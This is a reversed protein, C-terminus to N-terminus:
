VSEKKKVVVTPGRSILTILNRLIMPLSMKGTCLLYRPQWNPSYKEKYRRLGQFNYFRGGKLFLANGMKAWYGSLPHESLGSMPAMGLNFAAYGQAKGWLLLEVFLFDMIPGAGVEPLYRMLDISLSSRNDCSWLNAFGVVKDYSMVLALPGVKLYDEDFYGVSFGKERGQKHALWTDSIVKLEPFMNPEQAIDIVKFSLGERVGKSHSQRINRLKSSALNLNVLDVIAEEGLKFPILGLELYYPLYRASVQYFVPSADHEDCLERFQWLLEEICELQGIPDGMAIWSRGEIGYMLFANGSTHFLLSKDGLVALFGHTDGEKMVLEYAKAIEEETPPNGYSKAPSLLKLVGAAMLVAVGSGISRLGRSVAGEPSFDLWLAHDYEVHRYSFFLIWLAGLLVAGVSLLWSPTFPTHLLSGKRYFLARCPMIMIFFLALVIAPEWEGGKTLSAIVGIALLGQAVRFASDYRRYLSRALLILLVGCVGGFIHSIEILPLPLIELVNEVRVKMTPMVSSFLLLVGSSFAGFSILAPLSERMSLLIGYWRSWNEKNKILEQSSFLLLSIFFPLIYYICRYIILAALLQNTPVHGALLLTMCAEFVGIGGPVHAIVGLLSALVFVALLHSYDVSGTPLLAYLVAAAAMWDLLGLLLQVLRIPSSPLSLSHGRFSLSRYPILLYAIVASLSLYGIPILIYSFWIPTEALLVASQGLLISTGSLTLLGLFFTVSCFIIIRAIAGTSLGLASYFRYRVSTGTLLAFGLTNSFTYAIFSTLAIQSLPLKAKVMRVAFIDYCCLCTYSLLTFCLAITISTPSLLWISNRIDSWHWLHTLKYLIVLSAGLLLLSCLPALWATLYRKM